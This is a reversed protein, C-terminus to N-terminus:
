SSIFDGVQLSPAVERPSGGTGVDLAPRSACDSGDQWLWALWVRNARAVPIADAEVTGRQHNIHKGRVRMVAFESKGNSSIRDASLYAKETPADPM